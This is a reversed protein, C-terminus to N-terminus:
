FNGVPIKKKHFDGSFSWVLEYADDSKANEDRLCNLGSLWKFVKFSRARCKLCFVDDKLKGFNKKEEENELTGEPM